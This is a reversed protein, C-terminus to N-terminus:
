FNLRHLLNLEAAHEPTSSKFKSGRVRSRAIRASAQGGTAGQFLPFVASPIERFCDRRHTPDGLLATM